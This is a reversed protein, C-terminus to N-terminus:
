DVHLQVLDMLDTELVTKLENIADIANQVQIPQSVIAEGFPVTINGLATKANNIKTKITNDLSLNHKRVIDELGAADNGINGLYVAEVGRINNTFDTISNKAFPSEELDPNQATFPESIKGNAVEDCIGAMANVMEEYASLLTPYNASGNGASQFEHYYSSNNQPDWGTALDGTLTKLDLALAELYEFQRPTFQTATKDGDYGFLLYEIPHFGKLADDLGDIYSATFPQGNALIIELDNFNVPWTDIRPDINDTAVPGFLFSETKEWVLRSAKWSDKCAQLKTDDPSANFAEIKNYLDTTEGALNSYAFHAIYDAFDLVVKENTVTATTTNEDDDKKCGTFALATLALGLMTIKLKM